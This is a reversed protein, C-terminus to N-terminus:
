PLYGFPGALMLVRPLYLEAIAKVDAPLRRLGGAGPQLVAARSPCLEQQGADLVSISLYISCKNKTPWYVDGSTLGIGNECPNAGTQPYKM